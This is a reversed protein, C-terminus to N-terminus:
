LQAQLSVDITSSSSTTESRRSVQSPDCIEIYRTERGIIVLSDMTYVLRQYINDGFVCREKTWSCYVYVM